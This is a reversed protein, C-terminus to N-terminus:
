GEFSRRRLEAELEKVRLRLREVPTPRRPPRFPEDELMGDERLMRRVDARANALGRRDSPTGPLVYVRPQGHRSIWQARPHKAGRIVVIDRAGAQRLESLIVAIHDSARM